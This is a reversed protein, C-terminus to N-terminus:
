PAVFEKKLIRNVWNDQSVAMVMFNYKQGSRLTPPPNTDRINIVVNKTDYFTFLPERTYTGSILAGSPESVVEFYIADEPFGGAATASASSDDPWQFNLSTTNPALSIGAMDIATPQSAVRLHIMGSTHLTDNTLCTIVVWTERKLYDTAYRRLYGNFVPAVPWRKEQFDAFDLTDTTLSSAEFIRIDKANDKPYFFVSVPEAAGSKM